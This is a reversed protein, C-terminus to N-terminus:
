GYAVNCLTLVVAHSLLSSIAAFFITEANEPGIVVEVLIASNKFPMHIVYALNM